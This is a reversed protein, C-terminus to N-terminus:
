RTYGTVKPVARLELAIRSALEELDRGSAASWARILEACHTSLCVISGYFVEERVELGALSKLLRERMDEAGARDGGVGMAGTYLHLLVLCVGLLGEPRVKGDLEAVPDFESAVTALEWVDLFYSIACHVAASREVSERGTLDRALERVTAVDSYVSGGVMARVDDWVSNVAVTAVEASVGKLSRAESRM